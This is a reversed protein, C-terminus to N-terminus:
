SSTLDKYRNKLINSAFIPLRSKKISMSDERHLSNNEEIPPYQSIIEELQKYAIGTPRLGVKAINQTYRVGIKSLKEKSVIEAICIEQLILGVTADSSAIWSFDNVNDEFCYFIDVAMMFIAMDRAVNNLSEFEDEITERYTMDSQIKNFFEGEYLGRNEKVHFFVLIVHYIFSFIPLHNYRVMESFEIVHKKIGNKRNFIYKAIVLWDRLIDFYKKIREINNNMISIFENRDGQPILINFNSDLSEYYESIAMEPSEHNIFLESAAFMHSIEATMQDSEYLFSNITSRNINKRFDSLVNSDILIKKNLIVKGAEPFKVGGLFPTGLYLPKEGSTIRIFQKYPLQNALEFKIM